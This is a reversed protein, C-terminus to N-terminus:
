IGVSANVVHLPTTAYIRDYEDPSLAALTEAYYAAPIDWVPLLVRAWLPRWDDFKTM